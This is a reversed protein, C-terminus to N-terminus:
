PTDNKLFQFFVEVGSGDCRLDRKGELSPTTRLRGTLLVYRRKLNRITKGVSIVPANSAKLVGVSLDLSSAERKVLLRSAHQKIAHVRRGLNLREIEEQRDGEL